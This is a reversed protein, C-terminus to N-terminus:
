LLYSAVLILSFTIVCILIIKAIKKNKQQVYYSKPLQRRLYSRLYASPDNVDDLIDYKM